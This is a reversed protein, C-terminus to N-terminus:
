NQELWDPITGSKIGFVVFAKCNHMSTFFMITESAKAPEGRPHFTLKKGWITGDSFKGDTLKPPDNVNDEVWVAFDNPSSLQLADNPMPLTICEYTQGNLIVWPINAQTTSTTSPPTTSTPAPLPTTSTSVDTSPQQQQASALPCPASAIGKLTLAQGFLISTAITVKTIAINPDGYGDFTSTQGPLIPNFELQAQATNVFKGNVDLFTSDIEVNSLSQFSVNKIEGEIEPGMATLTCTLALVVVDPAHVAVTLSPTTPTPATSPTTNTNRDNSAQQQATDISSPSEQTQTTPSKDAIESIEFNGCGPSNITGSFTAGGDDSNGSMGVMIFSPPEEIWSVPQLELNGSNLDFTGDMLYSGQPNNNLDTGPPGFSFIAYQLAPNSPNSLVKLDIDTPGQPCTYTGTYEQSVSYGQPTTAQSNTAAIACGALLTFFGVLLIRM